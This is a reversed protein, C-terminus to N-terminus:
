NGKGNYTFIHSGYNQSSYGNTEFDKYAPTMNFTKGNDNSGAISFRAVSKNTVDNIEDGTQWNKRITNGPPALLISQYMKMFKDGNGDYANYHYDGSVNIVISQDPHRMVKDFYYVQQKGPSESTFRKQDFNLTCEANEATKYIGNMYDYQSLDTVEVSTPTKAPNVKEEKPQSSSSAAQSSSSSSKSSSSSSSKIRSLSEATRSSSAEEANQHQVTKLKIALLLVIVALAAIITIIIFSYDNKKKKPRQYM